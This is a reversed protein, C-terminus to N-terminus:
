NVVATVLLIGSYDGPNDAPSFVEEDDDGTSNDPDGNFIGVYLRPWGGTFQSKDLTGIGAVKGLLVKNIVTDNDGDTKVVTLSGKVDLGGLATGQNPNTGPTYSFSIDDPQGAGDGTTGIDIAYYFPSYFIGNVSDYLLQGFNLANTAPTWTSGQVRSVVFQIASSKQINVNIGFSGQDAFGATAGLLLVAVGLLMIFSFKITKMHEEKIKKNIFVLQNV